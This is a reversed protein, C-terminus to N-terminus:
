KDYWWAISTDTFLQANHENYLPTTIMTHIRRYLEWIHQEICASWDCSWSLEFNVAFKGDRSHCNTNTVTM